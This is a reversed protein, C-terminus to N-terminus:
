PPQEAPAPDRAQRQDGDHEGALGFGAASPQAQCEVAAGFGARRHGRRGRAPSVRAGLGPAQDRLHALEGGVAVPEICADGRELAMEVSM